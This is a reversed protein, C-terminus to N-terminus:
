SQSAIASQLSCPCLAMRDLGIKDRYKANTNRKLGHRKEALMELVHRAIGRAFL